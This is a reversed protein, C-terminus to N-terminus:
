RWSAAGTTVYLDGYGVTSLTTMSWWLTLRRDTCTRTAAASSSSSSCRPGSGCGTAVLFTYAFTATPLLPLQLRRVARRALAVLRLIRLVRVFRAARLPGAFPIAGLLDIWHRRVFRFRFGRARQFRLGFDVVFLGCLSFDLISLAADVAPELDFVEWYVLVGVAILTAVVILREWWPPMEPDVYAPALRRM